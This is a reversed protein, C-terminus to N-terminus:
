VQNIINIQDSIEYAQKSTAKLRNKIEELDTIDQISDVELQLSNIDSCIADVRDPHRALKALPIIGAKDGLYRIAKKCEETLEYDIDKKVAFLRNLSSTLKSHEIKIDMRKVQKDKVDQSQELQSQGAQILFVALIIFLITIVILAGFYWKPDLYGKGFFNYALMLIAALIVYRELQIVIALNPINFLKKESVKVISGFMIIELFLTFGLNFYFLNTDCNQCFMYFLGLTGGLVVTLLFLNLYKM